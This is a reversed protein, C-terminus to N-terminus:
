RNPKSKSLTEINEKLDPERPIINSENWINNNNSPIDMFITHPNIREKTELRKTSITDINCTAMEFWIHLASANTLLKKKKVKFHLDGRVHNIYYKNGWRKYSLTYRAEKPTIKIHRSRQKILKYGNQKIYRPHINFKVQILALTEADLYIEGEYFDHISEEKPTFHIVYTSRDNLLTIDSFFYIYGNNSEDPQLFSPLHTIADLTLCSYIGGSIKAILSDKATRFTIRNNTLLKVQEKPSISKIYPKYVYLIGEAMDLLKKKYKIGERYFTTLCVPDSFYNKEQQAMMGNLLKQPDKIRVIVEQMPIIHPTLHVVPTMDTLAKIDMTLQKYGIHSFILQSNRLTDPIHIHFEGNQNSVTGWSAGQIHITGQPIPLKSDEDLLIGNIHNNAHPTTQLSTILIYKDKVSLQLNQKGTIEYIAQAITRQRQKIKREQKNDILNSDYILHYGSKETIMQLLDYVSGKATPLLIIHDLEKQMETQAHCLQSAFSNTLLFVILIWHYLKRM